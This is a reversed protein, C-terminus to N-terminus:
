ARSFSVFFFCKWHWCKIMMSSKIIKKESKEIKYLWTKKWKLSLLLLLLFTTIILCVKPYKKKSFFTNWVFSMFLILLNWFFVNNTQQQVGSIGYKENIKLYIECNFWNLLFLDNIMSTNVTKSKIEEKDKKKNKISIFLVFNLIIVFVVSNPLNKNKKKTKSSRVIVVSLIFFM